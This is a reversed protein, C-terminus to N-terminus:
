FNVNEESNDFKLLQNKCHMCRFREFSVVAPLSKGDNIPAWGNLSRSELLFRARKLTIAFYMARHHASIEPQYEPGM